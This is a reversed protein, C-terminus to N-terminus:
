RTKKVGIRSYIFTAIATAAVYYMWHGDSVRIIFLVYFTALSIGFMIGINRSHLVYKLVAYIYIAHVIVGVIFYPMFDGTTHTLSARYGSLWYLLNGSLGFIGGILLLVFYLPVDYSKKIPKHKKM